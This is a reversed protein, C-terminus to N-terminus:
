RDTAVAYSQVHPNHRTRQSPDAKWNAKECNISPGALKVQDDLIAVFAQTWSLHGSLYSPMYPGRVSSNLFVFYKYLTYDVAKSDFLVWGFTGRRCM